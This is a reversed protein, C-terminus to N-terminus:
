LEEFFYPAALTASISGDNTFTEHWTAKPLLLWDGPNLVLVSLDNPISIKVGDYDFWTSDVPALCNRHPAQVAPTKSFRWLKKGVLQVIIITRTDFHLPAGNGAPSVYANVRDITNDILEPPILLSALEPVIAELNMYCRTGNIESYNNRPPLMIERHIGNPLSLMVKCSSLKLAEIMADNTSQSLVELNNGIIISM